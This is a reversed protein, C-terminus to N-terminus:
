PGLVTYSPSSIVNLQLRQANWTPTSGVTGACGSYGSRLSQDTRVRDHKWMSFFKKSM